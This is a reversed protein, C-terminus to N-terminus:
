PFSLYLAFCILPILLSFLSFFTKRLGRYDAVKSLRIAIFFSLLFALGYLTSYTIVDIHQTIYLPYLTSFLLAGLITEGSDFLAFSFLRIM